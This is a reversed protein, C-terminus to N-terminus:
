GAFLANIVGRASDATLERELQNYGAAVKADKWGGLEQVVEDDFVKNGFADTMNMFITAFTRRNTHSAVLEYFPYDGVTIRKTTEGNPLEVPMIKAGRVIEDFGALRCIKKM